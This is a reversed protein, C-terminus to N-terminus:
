PKVVFTASGLLPGYNVDSRSGYGPFVYWRYVGPHLRYAHGLYRWSQRLTYVSSKPWASLVKAPGFFLQVNYYSASPANDWDLRIARTKRRLQKGDTPARLPNRQPMVTVAAGASRNGAADVVSVVYRYEVGNTLRRDTFTTSKGQYVVTGGSDSLAQTTQSLSRTVVFSKVDSGAPRDWVLVVRRDGANARLNRVDGPPKVDPPPPLPTTDNMPLVTLTSSGTTANGSADTATFSVVTKGVPAVDPANSTLHPNPDVIDHASALHTFFASAIGAASTAHVTRNGPLTLVPPTTDVIRVHFQASGTHGHSDTASCTVTTTGLPFTSGSKPSCSVAPIPGDIDDVAAAAFTVVSGSPGNAERQIDAPPTVVPPQDNVNVTVHFSGTGKNGARDTASCSVTTTGTPFTSGSAHDCSVADTGDVADSASATYSVATGTYNPATTTIDGPLRLSPATTDRVTVKFSGPSSKNGSDDTATCTVTTSGLAFTSGSPHDCSISPSSDGTDSATVSFSVAAGAGSTAEATIDGPVHITPPQTDKVTIKFTTAASTNKSADTATCSVTTQGIPFTSGSPHDCSVVPSPDVIDSSSLSFTAVAGSPSTAELTQDAAGTPASPATTDVVNVNFTGAPVTNGDADVTTCDVETTGLQFQSGSPPTCTLSPDVSYSVQAGNPGTAEVTIDSLSGGDLVRAAALPAVALLVAAACVFSIL